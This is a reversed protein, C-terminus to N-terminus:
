FPCENKRRDNEKKTNDAVTLIRMNSYEYGKEEIVCDISYSNKTKGKLEIYHTEKCFKEFETVTVVFRKSRKRANNKLIHYYYHIPNNERFHRM